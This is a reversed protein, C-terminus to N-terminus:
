QAGEEDLLDLVAGIPGSPRGDSGRTVAKRLTSLDCGFQLALSVVIAADRSLDAADSGAKETDLFVEAIRGDWLRGIGATYRRGDHEFDVLEHSRRHPLLQRTSM